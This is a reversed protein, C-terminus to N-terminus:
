LQLTVENSGAAGAATASFTCSTGSPVPSAVWTFAGSADASVDKWGVTGNACRFGAKHGAGPAFGTGKVTVSKRDASLTATVTIPLLVIQKLKTSTIGSTNDTLTAECAGGEGLLDNSNPRTTLTSDLAGDTKAYLTYTLASEYKPCTLVLKVPGSPTFWRGTFQISYSGGTRKVQPKDLEPTIKLGSHTGTAPTATGFATFLSCMKSSDNFSFARCSSDRACRAACNSTDALRASVYASGSRNVNKGAGGAAWDVLRQALARQTANTFVLYSKGSAGSPATSAIEGKKLWCKDTVTFGTCSADKMCALACDGASKGSPEGLVYATDISWSGTWGGFVDGRSYLIPRYDTPAACSLRYGRDKANDYCYHGSSEGKGRLCLM